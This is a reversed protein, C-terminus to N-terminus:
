RHRWYNGRKEQLPYVGSLRRVGRITKIRVSAPTGDVIALHFDSYDLAITRIDKNLSEGPSLGLVNETKPDMYKVRFEKDVVIVSWNPNNFLFKGAEAIVTNLPYPEFASFLEKEDKNM